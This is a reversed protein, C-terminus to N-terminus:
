RRDRSLISILNDIKNEIRDLRRNNQDASEELRSLRESKQNVVESIRNMEQNIHTLWFSGGTAIIGALATM